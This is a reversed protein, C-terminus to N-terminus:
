NGIRFVFGSNATDYEGTGTRIESITWVALNMFLYEPDGDRFLLVPRELRHRNGFLERAAPYGKSPGEWHIGDDSEFYLGMGHEILSLDHALMKFKGEDHWVFPDECDKEGFDMVPNGEYKEYPGELKGSIALAITRPSKLNKRAKYYIWYQGNPHKLMTPNCVLKYDYDSTDQGTPIMPTRDSVREWPGYPSDSVLMGVSRTYSSWDAGRYVGDYLLVYKGDIHFIQPSGAGRNDWRDDWSPAIVTDLTTYPGGACDSVAHMLWIAHVSGSVSRQWHKGYEWQEYYVHVKGEPGYIPACTWVTWGEQTKNLIRNMPTLRRSFDPLGNDKNENEPGGACGAMCVMTLLM